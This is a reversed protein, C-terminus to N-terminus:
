FPVQLGANITHGMFDSRFDGEYRLFFSTKGWGQATLGLRPLFSGSSNSYGNVTFSGPQGSLSTKLERNDLPVQYGGGLWLEPIVRLGSQFTFTRVLRIGLEGQWTWTNYGDVRLNLSDAGSESLADQAVYILDMRVLPQFDWQGIKQDLGSNLRAALNYGDPSSAAQRDVGPFSVRRSVNAKRM